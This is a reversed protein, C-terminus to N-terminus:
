WGYGTPQQHQTFRRPPPIFTVPTELEPLWPTGRKKALKKLRKPLPEQERQKSWLVFGTTAPRSKALARTTVCPASVFLTGGGTSCRGLDHGWRRPVPRSMRLTPSERFQRTEQLPPCDTPNALLLCGSESEREKDVWKQFSFLVREQPETTRTQSTRTIM